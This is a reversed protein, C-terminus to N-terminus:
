VVPVPFYTARFEQLHIILVWCNNHLSILQASVSRYSDAYPDTQSIRATPFRYKLLTFNRYIIELEELRTQKQELSNKLYFKDNPKNKTM